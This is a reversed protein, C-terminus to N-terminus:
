LQSGFEEVLIPAIRHAEERTFQHSIHEPDQQDLSYINDNCGFRNLWELGKLHVYYHSDYDHEARSVSRGDAAWKYLLRMGTMEDIEQQRFEDYIYPAFTWFATTDTGESGVVLRVDRRESTRTVSDPLVAEPSYKLYAIAFAREIEGGRLLRLVHCLERGRVHELGSSVVEADGVVSLATAVEEDPWNKRLVPAHNLSRRISDYREITQSELTSGRVKAEDGM